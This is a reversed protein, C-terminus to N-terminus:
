YLSDKNINELLLLLHFLHFIFLSFHITIEIIALISIASIKRPFEEEQWINFVM